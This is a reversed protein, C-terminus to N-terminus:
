KFKIHIHLPHKELLAKYGTVKEAIEMMIKRESDSMIAVGTADDGNIDIDIAGAKQHDSMLINQEFYNQILNAMKQVTTARSEGKKIIAILENAAKRNHYLSFTKDGGMYVDYMADAQHWADRTGSNVNFKKGVKDFYLPGIKDLVAIADAELTIGADVTYYSNEDAKEKEPKPKAADIASKLLLLNVANDACATPAVILRITTLWQYLQRCLQLGKRTECLAGPNCGNIFRCGVDLKSYDDLLVFAEYVVGTQSLCIQILHTALGDSDGYYKQQLVAALKKDNDGPM